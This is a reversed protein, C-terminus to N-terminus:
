VNKRAVFQEPHALSDGPMTLDICGIQTGDCLAEVIIGPTTGQFHLSLQFFPATRRVQLFSNLSQALPWTKQFDLLGKSLNECPPTANSPLGLNQQVESVINMVEQFLM